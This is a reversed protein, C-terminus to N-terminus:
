KHMEIIHKTVLIFVMTPRNIKVDVKTALLYHLLPFLPISISYHYFNYHCEKKTQRGTNPNGYPPLLALLYYTTM